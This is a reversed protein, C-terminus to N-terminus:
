LLSVQALLELRRLDQHSDTDLEHIYLNRKSEQKVQQKISAAQLMIIMIQHCKM